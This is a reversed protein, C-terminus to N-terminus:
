FTRTSYLASRVQMLTYGLLNKGQWKTIDNVRTDSVSLGNGWLPDDPLCAVITTSGTDLLAKSLDDNQAFKALLGKYAVVQIQGDWALMDGRGERFRITPLNFEPALLIRRGNEETGMLLAMRHAMFQDMSRYHVGSVSFLSGYDNCMFGNVDQPRQFTVFGCQEASAVSSYYRDLRTLCIARLSALQSENISGVLSPDFSLTGSSSSFVFYDSSSLLAKVPNCKINQKVQEFTCDLNSYISNRREAILGQELRTSYFRLFFSAAEDLNISGHNQILALILVPKYSYSMSMKECYELISSYRDTAMSYKM